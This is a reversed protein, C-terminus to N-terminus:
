IFDEYVCGRNSIGSILVTRSTIMGYNAIYLPRTIVYAQKSRDPRFVWSFFCNLEVLWVKLVVAGGTSHGLLFCPVDPNELM